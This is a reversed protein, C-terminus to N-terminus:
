LREVVLTFMGPDDPVRGDVVITVEQMEELSVVVESEGGGAAGADCALERAGCQGEYVALITEFESDQTRIRYRGADKPTWLVSYDNAANVGMCNPAFRNMGGETTATVEGGSGLPEDWCSGVREIDLVYDGAEGGAGDVVVLVGEGNAVFASVAQQDPELPTEPDFEYCGRLRYNPILCDTGVYVAPIANFSSRSLDFSYVGPEISRWLLSVDEAFRGGLCEDGGHDNHMGLTTGPFSGEGEIEGAACSRDDNIKIAFEGEDGEFTGDVTILIRENAQLDLLLRQGGPGTRFGLLNGGCADKEVLLGANFATGMTDVLYQGSSEAVWQFSRDPAGDGWFDNYRVDDTGGVTSGRRTLPLRGALTEDRCAVGDRVQVTVEGAQAPIDGDVVFTVTEGEALDQAVVARGGGRRGRSCLRPSTPGYCGDGARSYVVPDFSTDVVEAEFAYTGAAPATWSFYAEPGEVGGCPGEGRNPLGRTDIVATASPLATGLSQPECPSEGDDSGDGEGDSDTGGDGGTSTAGAGDTASGDPGGHTSSGDDGDAGTTEGSGGCVGRICRLAPGCDDTHDCAAGALFEGRFCAGGAAVLGLFLCALRHPFQM